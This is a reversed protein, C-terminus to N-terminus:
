KSFVKLLSIGLGTISLLSCTQQIPIFIFRFARSCWLASKNVDTTSALLRFLLSEHVNESGIASEPFVAIKGESKYNSKRLNKFFLHYNVTSKIAICNTRRDFSYYIMRQETVRSYINAFKKCTEKPINQVPNFEHPTEYNSCKCWQGVGFWLSPRFTLLRCKVVTWIFKKRFLQKWGITIFHSIM